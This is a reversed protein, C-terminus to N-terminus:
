GRKVNQWRMGHVYTFSYEEVTNWDSWTREYSGFNLTVSKMGGAPLKLMPIKKPRGTFVDKTGDARTFTIRMSFDNLKTITLDSRKNYFSGRVCLNGKDLWVKSTSWGLIMTDSSLEAGNVGFPIFFFALVAMATLFWKKM